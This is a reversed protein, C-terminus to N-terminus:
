ANRVKEAYDLCIWGIGSKLRGWKTMTGDHLKGEKEEVITYAGPKLQMDLAVYGVGPGTRINLDDITVRAIYPVFEDTIAENISAGSDTVDYTTLNYQNIVNIINEVYTSSTAYGGDKIIKIAKVYDTCGKLGEYRKKSGNMAGLLYASHDAISDEICPYKRFNATITVRQSNYEEGTQKTYISKGDWTSGSWTNGSLNQKMGFCNNAAVALESKGCASELIFQALSVSALIGSKKQDATFLKGIKGIIQVNTLGALDTCKTGNKVPAPAPVPASGSIAAKFEKWKSQDNHIWGIIGPCPKGSIDWHRVVHDADINYEKMLHKTLEIAKKVVADTFYYNGDLPQTMAGTRNSSCIEISITNGNTAIGYLSAGGYYTNKSDGVAWCSYNRPDPNYQVATTDDVEFDASGNTATTGFYTAVNTASGTRSTTGATYHIAIYKIKRGPTYNMNRTSTKKIIDM